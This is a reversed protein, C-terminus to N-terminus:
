AAIPPRVEGRAIESRYALGTVAMAWLTRLLKNAVAVFAQKPTLRHPRDEATLALFRARFDPNHRVLTVSAGVAVHRLTPRGRRHIGGAAQREGSSRETPNSGALKVLCGADDFRRPDGALGLLSVLVPDGLGRIQGRMWGLGTAEFLGSMVAELEEIAEEAGRIRWAALRCRLIAAATEPFPEVGAAAAQLRRAMAAMFRRPRHAATLVELFEREPMAEVQQPTLGTRLLAQLHTGSLDPCDALLRPWVLELLARQETLAATREVSRANRAEALLELEAWPGAALRAESFRLEAALDAILGADRLDTKDRTLNDLERSRAVVFGSVLVYPVGLAELAHAVIKWFHSTPEMAVVLPGLGHRERLLAGRSSVRSGLGTPRSRSATSGSATPPM